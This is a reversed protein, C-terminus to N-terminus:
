ACTFFYMHVSATLALLASPLHCSAGSGHGTSEEIPAVLGNDTPASPAISNSDPGLHMMLMDEDNNLIDNIARKIEKVRKRLEDLKNKLPLLEDVQTQQLLDLGRSEIRLANLTTAV